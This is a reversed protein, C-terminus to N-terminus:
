GHVPKRAIVTVFAKNKGGPAAFDSFDLHLIEWGAFRSAMEERSFLCHSEPDFMDLFTTGEVLVNVVAMGGERVHAQLNALAKFATPCDFFMLLGISVVTDFDEGLEYDRLDALAAEVPRAEAAARQRIHDIAAPSADLAVVSCGREAAAFALNGIGCGYDLVRGHLYPMAVLEFPNLHFDRERVQKRFQADFFAISRDPDM